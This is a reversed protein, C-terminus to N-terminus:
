AACNQGEGFLIFDSSVGFFDKLAHLNSHDPVTKGYEWKYLTQRSIDFIDAMEQMTISKANRLMRLRAGIAPMDVTYNLKINKM